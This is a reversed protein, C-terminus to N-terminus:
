AALEESAAVPAEPPISELDRATAGILMSGSEDAM